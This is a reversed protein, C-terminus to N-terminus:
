KKCGAGEKKKKGFAERELSAFLVKSVNHWITNNNPNEKVQTLDYLKLSLLHM